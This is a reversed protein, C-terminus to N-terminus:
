VVGRGGREGREIAKQREFAGFRGKPSIKEQSPEGTLRDEPTSLTKRFRFLENNGDDCISDDPNRKNCTSQAKEEGDGQRAKRRAFALRAAKRVDRFPYPCVNCEDFVRGLGIM